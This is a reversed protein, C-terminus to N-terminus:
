TPSLQVKVPNQIQQLLALTQDALLRSKLIRVKLLDVEIALKQRLARNDARIMQTETEPRNLQIMGTESYTVYTHLFDAM